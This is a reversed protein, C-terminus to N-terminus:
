PVDHDYVWLKYFPCIWHDLSMRILSIGSYEHKMGTDHCEM